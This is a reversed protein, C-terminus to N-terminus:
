KMCSATWVYQTGTGRGSKEVLGEAILKALIPRLEAASLDVGRRIQQSSLLAAKSKLTRVVMDRPSQPDTGKAPRAPAPVPAAAAPAPRARGSSRDLHLPALSRHWFPVSPKGACRFCNRHGGSGCLNWCESCFVHTAADCMAFSFISKGCGNCQIPAWQNALGDFRVRMTLEHKRRKVILEADLGPGRLAVLGALELSVKIAHNSVLQSRRRLREAPLAALKARLGPADQRVAIRQELDAAVDAFYQEVREADRRHRRSVTERFSTLRTVTEDVLAARLRAFGRQLAEAPLAEIDVPDLRFAELEPLDVPGGSAAPLAVQVLGERQDDSTAVFRGLGILTWAPTAVVNGVRVSLNLGTFAKPPRPSPPPLDVSGSIVRGQEGLALRALKSLAETGYGCALDGEAADDEVLVALEGVGLEHQLNDPLLVEIRGPTSRDVLAGEQALVGEVFSTLRRTM